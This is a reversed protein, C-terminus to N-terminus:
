KDKAIQKRYLKRLKEYKAKHSRENTKRWLKYASDKMRLAKKAERSIWTPQKARTIYGRPVFMNTATLCLEKLIAWCEEVTNTQHMKLLVEQDRIWLRMDDWNAKGWKLYVINENPMSVNSSKVLLECTVLVHWKEIPSFLKVNSVSTGTSIMVHDICSDKHTGETVHNILNMEHCYRNVKQSNSSVLTNMNTDDVVVITCNDENLTIIDSIEEYFKNENENPPKYVSLVIVNRNQLKVSVGEINSNCAVASHRLKSKVYICVGGGHSNRDRRFVTYGEIYISSTLHGDCIKTDQVCCVDTNYVNLALKICDLKGILGNVNVTALKITATDEKNL